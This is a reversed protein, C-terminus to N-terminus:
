YAKKEEIQEMISEFFRDYFGGSQAFYYLADIGSVLPTKKAHTYPM